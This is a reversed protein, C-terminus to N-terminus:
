VDCSVWDTDIVLQIMLVFRKGNNQKTQMQFTIKHHTIANSKELQHLFGSWSHSMELYMECTLLWNRLVSNPANVDNQSDTYPIAVRFICESCLIVQFGDVLIVWLMRKKKRYMGDIDNINYTSQTSACSSQISTLRITYCVCMTISTFLTRYRVWNIAWKINM